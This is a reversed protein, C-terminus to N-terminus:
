TQKIIPKAWTGYLSTVQEAEGCSYGKNEM